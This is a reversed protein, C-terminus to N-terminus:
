VHFEGQEMLREWSKRTRGAIGVSYARVKLGFDWPKVPARDVFKKLVLAIKAQVSKDIPSIMIDSIDEPKLWGPFGLGARMRYRDHYVRITYVGGEIDFDDGNEVQSHVFPLGIEGLIQELIKAAERYHFPYSSRWTDKAM